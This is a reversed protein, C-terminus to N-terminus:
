KVGAVIDALQVSLRSLAPGVGECNSMLAVAAKNPSDVLLFTSTGQQAGGHAIAGTADVRWGLGNDIEKGDKLKQRTNMLAVTKDQLLKGTQLAV